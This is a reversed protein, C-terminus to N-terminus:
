SYKHLYLFIVLIRFCAFSLLLIALFVNNKYTLIAIERITENYVDITTNFVKQENHPHQEM